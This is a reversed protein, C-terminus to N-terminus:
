KVGLSKGNDMIEFLTHIMGGLMVYVSGCCFVM